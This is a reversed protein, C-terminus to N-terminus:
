GTFIRKLRVISQLGVIILIVGIIVPIAYFIFEGDVNQVLTYLMQSGFITTIAIGIIMIVPTSPRM